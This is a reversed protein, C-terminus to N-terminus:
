PAGPSSVSPASPRLIAANNGSSGPALVCQKSDGDHSAPLDGIRVRRLDLPDLSALDNSDTIPLPQHGLLEELPERDSAIKVIHALQQTLRPRVDDVDRCWRFAMKVKRSEAEFTSAVHIHFLGECEVFLFGLPQNGERIGLPELHRGPMIKLEAVRRSAHSREGLAAIQAPGRHM